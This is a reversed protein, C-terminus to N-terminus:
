PRVVTVTGGSLDRAEHELEHVVLALVEEDRIMHRALLRFARELRELRENQRHENGFM